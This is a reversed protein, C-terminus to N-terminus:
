FLLSSVSLQLLLEMVRLPCAPVWSFSVVGAGGGGGGWAARLEEESDKEETGMKRWLIWLHWKRDVLSELPMRLTYSGLHLGGSLWCRGRRLLFMSSHDITLLRWLGMGLPVLAVRGSGASSPSVGKNWCAGCIAMIFYLDPIEPTYMPFEM